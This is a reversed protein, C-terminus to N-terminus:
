AFNVFILCLIEFGTIAPLPPPQAGLATGPDVKQLLYKKKDNWITKDKKRTLDAM